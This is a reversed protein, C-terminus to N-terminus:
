AEVLDLVPRGFRSLELELAGTDDSALRMTAAPRAFNLRTGAPYDDRLWPRIQLGVVSGVAGSDPADLGVVVHLGNAISFLHGVALVGGSIRRVSLATGNLAADADLEFSTVSSTPRRAHELVPVVVSGARGDLGAVLGRFALVKEPTGCPITLSARTYGTPGAVIQERNTQSRGGSRSAGANPDWTEISPVLVAPWALPYPM